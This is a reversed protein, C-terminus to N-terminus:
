NPSCMSTRITPTLVSWCANMIALLKRCRSSPQTLRPGEIMDKRNAMPHAEIAERNHARIDIDLGLVRRSPVKPDLM